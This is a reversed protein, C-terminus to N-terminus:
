SKYALIVASTKILNHTPSENGLVHLGCLHFPLIAQPNLFFFDVASKEFRKSCKENTQKSAHSADGKFTM